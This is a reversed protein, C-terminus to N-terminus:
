QHYMPIFRIKLNIGTLNQLWLDLFLDFQGSFDYVDFLGNKRGLISIEMGAGM